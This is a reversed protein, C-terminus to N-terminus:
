NDNMGFEITRLVGKWYSERDLGTDRSAKKDFIELISYSFNRIIHEAGYQNKLEIMEKNGGTPDSLNAYSSWRTWLGDADSSASGVYLRGTSRDTIVYVAKVSSLADHWEPENHNIIDQLEGHTLCVHDYGNFAGLKTRPSIEYVEPDLQAQINAYKRLYLDRGIPKNLRIVLRKRYESYEDMLTLEYGYINWQGPAADRVHYLGGFIFYEPGYRYYQAFAFLYKRGGMNGNPQKTKWANMILWDPDDHLLLNWAPRSRDNPNMNFKIKAQDPKDFHFLDTLKIPMQETM